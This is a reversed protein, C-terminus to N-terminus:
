KLWEPKTPENLTETVDLWAQYWANLEEVQKDTLTAYWLSGRNIISFCEIERRERLTEVKDNLTIVNERIEYIYHNNEESKIAFVYYKGSSNCEDVIKKTLKEFRQGVELM